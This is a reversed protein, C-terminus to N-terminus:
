SPCILIVFVAVMFWLREVLIFPCTENMALPSNFDCLCRGCVEVKQLSYFSLRLRLPEFRYSSRPHVAIYHKIVYLIVLLLYVSIYQKCSSVVIFDATRSDLLQSYMIQSQLTLVTVYIHTLKLGRFCYFSVYIHTLKLVRFCYSSNCLHAGTKKVLINPCLLHM